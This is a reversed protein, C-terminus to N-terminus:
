PARGPLLRRPGERDRGGGFRLLLAAGGAARPVDGDGGACETVADDVSGDDPQGRGGQARVVRRQPARARDSLIRRARAAGGRERADRGSRRLSHARRHPPGRVDHRAPNTPRVGGAAPNPKAASTVSCRAMSSLRTTARSRRAACRRARPRRRPQKRRRAASPPLLCRTSALARARM